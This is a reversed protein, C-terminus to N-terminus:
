PEVESKHPSVDDSEGGGASVYYLEPHKEYYALWLDLQSQIAQVRPIYFPDFEPSFPSPAPRAGLRVVADYHYDLSVSDAHGQRLLSVDSPYDGFPLAFSRVEYGPILAEIRQQSVALEWQVEAPAIQSLDPHTITHSGVEMGWDVLARAKKAALDAQRFLRAGPEEGSSLLVYFTARLPWYDGYHQHMSMLIAVACDPDIADDEVVGEELYRFHGRSSDDFTLVIPRRGRPVRALKGTAYDILNVPYYGHAVLYELDARLNEPTRQWRGEPRGIAHYVLVLVDGM